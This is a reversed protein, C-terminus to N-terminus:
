PTNVKQSPACMVPTGAVALDRALRTQNGGDREVDAFVRYGGPEAVTIPTTWTGDAAM